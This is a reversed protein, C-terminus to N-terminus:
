SWVVVLRVTSMTETFRTLQSFQSGALLPLSYELLFISEWQKMSDDRVLMQVPLHGYLRNTHMLYHRCNVFHEGTSM